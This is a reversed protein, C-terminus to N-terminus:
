SLGADVIFSQATIMRSEDSALFLAAEAVDWATGQRGMPTKAAREAALAAPDVAGGIFASVHPTDIMGPLVTNSRVNYRANEVALSQSLRCLAAKSAEYSVYSYGGSGRLAALSSIFVLAGAGQARMVPIVARPQESRRVARLTHGFLVQVRMVKIGGSTSGTSGGVVFLFLLVIQAASAWIVFDGPSGSETANGFGTSTGLSVANFVGSRVSTGFGFANDTWLFWTILLSAFFLVALYVRFESDRRHAHVDGTLARWHGSSRDFWRDVLRVAVVAQPSAAYEQLYRLTSRDLERPGVLLQRFWDAWGFAPWSTPTSM